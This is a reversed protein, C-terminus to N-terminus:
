SGQAVGLVLFSNEGPVNNQRNESLYLGGETNIGTIQGADQLLMENHHIWGTAASFGSICEDVSNANELLCYSIECNTWAASMNINAASFDGNSRLNKITVRDPSVGAIFTVNGATDTGDNVCDILNFYDATASLTLWTVTNDTTLDEFFCDNILLHAGTVPIGVVLADVGGIFHVNSIRCNAASVTWTSATASFTIQPRATGRGMGIVAVGAVDMAVGAAGSITEAHGPLVVVVDDNDATCLNIAADITPVARNFRTGDFTTSGTVSSVYFYNGFTVPLGDGVTPVGDVTLPSTFDTM